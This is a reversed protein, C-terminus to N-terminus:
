EVSETGAELVKADRETLFAEAVQKLPYKVDPTDPSWKALFKDWDNKLGAVAKVFNEKESDIYSVLKCPFINDEHACQACTWLFALLDRALNYRQGTEWVARWARVNQWDLSNLSKGDDLWFEETSENGDASQCSFQFRYILCVFKHSEARSMWLDLMQESLVGPAFDMIDSNKGLLLNDHSTVGILKTLKYSSSAPLLNRSFVNYPLSYVTMELVQFYTQLRTRYLDDHRPEHMANSGPIPGVPTIILPEHDPRNYTKPNARDLVLCYHLTLQEPDDDTLEISVEHVISLDHPKSTALTMYPAIDARNDELTRTSFSTGCHRLKSPNLSLKLTRHNCRGMRCESDMSPDEWDFDIAEHTRLETTPRGFDGLGNATGASATATCMNTRVAATAAIDESTALTATAPPAASAPNGMSIPNISSRLERRSRRDGKDESNGREADNEIKARKESNMERVDLRENARRKESRLNLTRGAESDPAHM